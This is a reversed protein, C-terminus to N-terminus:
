KSVEEPPEKQIPPPTADVESEKSAFGVGTHVVEVRFKSFDIDQKIEATQKPLGVVRDLISNLDWLSGKNYAKVLVKAIVRELLTCEPNVEVLQLQDIRLAVLTNLVDVIEGAKYGYDTIQSILKKPAGDMNRREDPGKKFPILGSQNPNKNAM